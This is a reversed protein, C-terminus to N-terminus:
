RPPLSIQTFAEAQEIWTKGKNKRTVESRYTDNVLKNVEGVDIHLGAALTSCTSAPPKGGFAIRYPLLKGM